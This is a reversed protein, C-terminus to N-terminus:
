REPLLLYDSKDWLYKLQIQTARIASAPTGPGALVLLDNTGVRLNAAPVLKQARLWGTYRFHMPKVLRETEGRYAPDALEPLTLSVSGLNEGNLYIEPPADIRATSVEFTVLATLPQTELGFQFAAGQQVSAGIRITEPALTATVTGFTESDQEPAHLPAVASFPEPIMERREASLPRAVNGSTMWDMFVGRVTSGDGAVEVDICSVGIMPLIVTDSTALDTGAGLADSRLVQSGSEDWAVIAPRQEPKDDFFLRVLLMQLDARPHSVRIRFITQAQVGERAPLPVLNVSEVWTPANQPTSNAAANQRLDLWASTAATTQAPTNLSQLLGGTFAEQSQARAAALFFAAFALARLFM